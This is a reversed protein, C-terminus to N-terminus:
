RRGGHPGSPPVADSPGTGFFPAARLLRYRGKRRSGVRCILGNTKLAAIDRKATKEAVGFRERLAGASVRTGKALEGLFWAQRHNPVFGDDPDAEPDDIPDRDPGDGGSVTRRGRPGRPAAAGAPVSRMVLMEVIDLRRSAILLMQLVTESHVLLAILHDGDPGCSGSLWNKVSRESAKTWRRVTKITRRSDDLETKLALSIIEAYRRPPGEGRSGATLSRGKEPLM